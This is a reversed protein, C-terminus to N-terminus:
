ELGGCFITGVEAAGEPLDDVEVPVPGPGAEAHITQEAACGLPPRSGLTGAAM